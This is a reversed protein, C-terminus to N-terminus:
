LPNREVPEMAMFGAGTAGFSAQGQITALVAHPVVGLAPLTSETGLVGVGGMADVAVSGFVAGVLKAPPSMPVLLAVPQQCQSAQVHGAASYPSLGRPWEM